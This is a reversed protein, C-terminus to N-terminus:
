RDLAIGGRGILRLGSSGHVWWPMCGVYYRALDGLISRLAWEDTMHGFKPAFPPPWLDASWSTSRGPVPGERRWSGRTVERNVRSPPKLLIPQMEPTAGEKLYLPLPTLILSVGCVVGNM